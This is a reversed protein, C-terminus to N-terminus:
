GYDPFLPGFIEGWKQISTKHDGDNEAQRAELARRYDTDARNQIKLKEEFSLNNLNGQIEKLDPIIEFERKPKTPWLLGM